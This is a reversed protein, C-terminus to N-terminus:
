RPSTPARKAFCAPLFCCWPPTTTPWWSAAGPSRARAPWCPLSKPLRRSRSCRLHRSRLAITSACGVRAASASCRVCVRSPRGPRRWCRPARASPYAEARPWERDVRGPRTPDRRTVRACVEDITAEQPAPLLANSEVLTGTVRGLVRWLQEARLPRTVVEDAGQDRALATDSGADGPAIVVVPVFDTLPDARLGALLGGEFALRAEALVVDPADDLASELAERASTAATVRLSEASLLDCLVAVSPQETVVLVHLVRQFTPVRLRDREITPPFSSSRAVWRGPMESPTAVPLGVPLLGTLTASHRAGSGRSAEGSTAPVSAPSAPTGVPAVSGPATSPQAHGMSDRRPAPREFLAGRQAARGAAQGPRSCCRWTARSSAASSSAHRRRPREIGEQVLAALADSRFVLASAYLRTFSAGCKM